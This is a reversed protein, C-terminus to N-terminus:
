FSVKYNITPIIGTQYETNVMERSRDFSFGLINQQNFINQIDIQISHTTKPLNITYSMSFDLRRYDRAQESYFNNNLVVLEEKELTAPINIPNYRNGGSFLLKANIGLVNNKGITFEKGGLINIVYNGNFRTDWYVPATSKFKSEYFSGTILFYYGKTFFKELTIEVGYNYGRGNSVLTDNLARIVDYSDTNNFISLQGHDPNTSSPVDYIRQLYTEAKIRLDNKLKVDYGLVAHVAKPFDLNKNPQIETGDELTRRYVYTSVDGLQSHLGFGFSLNQNPRRQWSLAFRPEFNQKKNFEFFIHHLGTNFMLKDTLQYKWQVFTQITFAKGQDDLLDIWANRNRSLFYYDLKYTLQNFNLGARFTSRSSLKNHYFFNIRNTSNDYIEEEVKNPNYNNLNELRYFKYRYGAFSTAITTKFYASNSLGYFHSLGVFGLWGREEDKFFVNPLTDRNFNPINAIKNFGGIGFFSFKGWKKTPLYLKFTLDQYKPIAGFPVPNLDLEDLIALSSYRYNLLYSASKGRKLPGETSVEVGLSGIMISSEYKDSNGNRMKMDFVGSITNGYEASFAGTMFDSNSLVNSSLMSIAGSSAGISGYHNPNPIEIGELRWLLSTSANGRIIIENDLDNISSVGAFSRAMRAPDQFSAPYRSAEEISFPRISVTAMENIPKMKNISATILVEGLSTTSEKLSINLFNEKGSIVKIDKIITPEYGIYSIEFSQRGVPVNELAFEGTGSSSTGLFSKQNLLQINAGILPMKSDRDVILGKITQQRITKKKKTPSPAAAAYETSLSSKRRKVKLPKLAIQHGILKYDIQVKRFIKRLVKRLSKNKFSVSVKHKLAIFDKSYTFQIHYQKELQDLISQVSENNVNLSVKKELSVQASLWTPVVILLFSITLIKWM